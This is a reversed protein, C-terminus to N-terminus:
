IRRRESVENADCSVARSLIKVMRWPIEEMFAKIHRELLNREQDDAGRRERLEHAGSKLLIHAHKPDNPNLARAACLRQFQLVSETELTLWASVDGDASLASRDGVGLVLDLVKSGYRHGVLKWMRHADLNAQGEQGAVGIVQHMIRDPMGQLRAADFFIKRYLRVSEASLGFRAAVASDDLETLMYAEVAPRMCELDGHHLSFAVSMDEHNPSLKVKRDPDRLLERNNMFRFTEHTDKDDHRSLRIGRRRCKRVLQYRSDLPASPNSPNLRRRVNEIPEM